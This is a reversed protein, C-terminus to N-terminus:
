LFCFVPASFLLYLVALGLCHDTPLLCLQLPLRCTTGVIGGLLQNEVMGNRPFSSMIIPLVTPWYRIGDLSPAPPMPSTNQGVVRPQFASGGDLEQRRFHGRVRLSALAEEVLGLGTRREVMRVDANDVVHALRVVPKEKDGHLEHFALRQVHNTFYPGSSIERTTSIATCTASRLQQWRFFNGAV